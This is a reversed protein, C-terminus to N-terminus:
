KTELLCAIYALDAEMNLKQQEEQTLGPPNFVPGELKYIIEKENKDNLDYGIIREFVIGDKMFKERDEKVAM